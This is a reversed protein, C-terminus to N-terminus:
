TLPVFVSIKKMVSSQSKLLTMDLGLVTNRLQGDLMQRDDEATKEREGGGGTGGRVGM